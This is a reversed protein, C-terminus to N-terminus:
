GALMETRITKDVDPSGDVKVKLGANKAQFEDGARQYFDLGYGGKFALVSLDGSLKAAGTPASKVEDPASSADKGSDSPAGCGTLLASVAVVCFGSKWVM